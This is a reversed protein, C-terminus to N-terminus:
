GGSLGKKQTNEGKESNGDTKRRLRYFFNNQSVDQSSGYSYMIKRQFYILVGEYVQTFARRITENGFIGRIGLSLM